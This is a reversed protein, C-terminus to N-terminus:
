NFLKSWWSRSREKQLEYVLKDIKEQLKIETARTDKDEQLDKYKSEGLSIQDKLLKKEIEFNKEITSTAEKNAARIQAIRAEMEQSKDRLTGLEKAVDSEAKQRLEKQVDEFNIYEVKEEVTGDSISHNHLTVIESQFDGFLRYDKSVTSRGINEKIAKSIVSIPDAKSSHPREKCTESIDRALRGVNIYIESASDRVNIITKSVIRKNSEVEKLTLKLDVIEKEKKAVNAKQIVVEDEIKKLEALDMKVEAM